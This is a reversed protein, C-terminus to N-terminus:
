WGPEGLLNCNKCIEPPESNPDLLKKRMETITSHNYISEPVSDFLNSNEGTLMKDTGCCIAMNGSIDCGIRQWIQPCLKKINGIQYAPPWLCFGPFTEDMRKRFEIFAPLNENIIEEPKPNTGVPRYMWFRLSLCGAKRVFRATEILKEAKQEIDSKLLVISMHVPFVSNIKEIDREVIARNAEYLSVNIRSIGAKKLGEIRERLLLANTSTNVIHGRKVLFSVINEFDQVLLPEGGQLDVLLCKDFLPNNFIKQVKELTADNKFKESGGKNIFNGGACYGCNLNCRLTVWLSAIQPTYTKVSAKVKRPLSRFKVYNWVKPAARILPVKRFMEYYYTLKSM